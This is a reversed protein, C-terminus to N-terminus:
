LAPSDTKEVPKEPEPLVVDEPKTEPSEEKKEELKEEELKEEELKEEELKEEELKEEKEMEKEEKAEAKAEALSISTPPNPEPPPQLASPRETIPSGPGENSSDSAAMGKENDMIDEEWHTREQVM